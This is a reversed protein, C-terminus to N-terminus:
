DRGGSTLPFGHMLMWCTSLVALKRTQIPGEVDRGRTPPLTLIGGGKGFGDASSTVRRKWPKGHASTSVAMRLDCGGEMRGNTQSGHYEATAQEKLRM